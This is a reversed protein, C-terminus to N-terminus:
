GYYKWVGFGLAILVIGILAIIYEMRSPPGHRKALDEDSINNNM